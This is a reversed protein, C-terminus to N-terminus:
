SAQELWDGEDSFVGEDGVGLTLDEDDLCHLEDSDVPPVLTFQSPMNEGRKAVMLETPFYEPHHRLNLIQKGAKIVAKLHDDSLGNNAASTLVWTLQEPSLHRIGIAIETAVVDPKGNAIACAM